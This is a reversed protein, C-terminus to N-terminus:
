RRGSLDLDQNHFGGVVMPRRESEMIAACALLHQSPAAHAPNPVEPSARVKREGFEGNTVGCVKVTNLGAVYASAASLSNSNSKQSEYDKPDLCLGAIAAAPDSPRMFSGGILCMVVGIDWYRAVNAANSMGSLACLVYNSDASNHDFECGRTKLQEAVHETTQLGM